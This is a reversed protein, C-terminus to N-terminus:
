AWQLRYTASSSAGGKVETMYAKTCVSEVLGLAVGKLAGRFYRSELLVCQAYTIIAEKPGVKQVGVGGGDFARAWFRPFQEFITWPTMGVNKAVRAAARTLHDRISSGTMRGITIKDESSLNLGDCAAYHASAVAVPFWAFAVAEVILKRYSPDLRAIYQDFHGARRVAGLSSVLLTSRVQRM